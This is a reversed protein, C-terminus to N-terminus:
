PLGASLLVAQLCGARPAEEVGQPAETEGLRAGHFSQRLQQRRRALSSSSLFRFATKKSGPTPRPPRRAPPPERCPPTRCSEPPAPRVLRQAALRGAHCAGQRATRFGPWREPGLEPLCGAVRNLQDQARHRGPPPRLPVSCNPAAASRHPWGTRREASPNWRGSCHRCAVTRDDDPPRLPNQAPQSGRASDTPPPRSGPGRWRRDRRDSAGREAPRRSTSTPRSATAPPRPRRGSRHNDARRRVPPPRSRRRRPTPLRRPPVAGPPPGGHRMEEHKVAQEREAVQQLVRAVHVRATM